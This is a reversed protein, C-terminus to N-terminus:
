SVAGCTGSRILVSAPRSRQGARRRSRDGPPRCTTTRRWRHAAFLDDIDDSAAVSAHFIRAWLLPSLDRVAARRLDAADAAPLKAVLGTWLRVDIM